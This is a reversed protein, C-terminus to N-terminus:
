KRRLYIIVGSPYYFHRLYFSNQLNSRERQLSLFLKKFFCSILIKKPNESLFSFEGRRYTHSFTYPFKASIVMPKQNGRGQLFSFFSFFLEGWVGKIFFLFIFSFFDGMGRGGFFHKKSTSKKFKSNQQLLLTIRTM